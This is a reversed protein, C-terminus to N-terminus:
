LTPGHTPQSSSTVVHTGLEPVWEAAAVGAGTLNDCRVLQVGVRALPCNGSGRASISTARTLGSQATTAGAPSTASALLIAVAIASGTRTHTSINM